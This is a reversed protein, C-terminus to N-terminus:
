RRGLGARPARRAGPTIDHRTDGRGVRRGFRVGALFRRSRAWCSDGGGTPRCSRRGGRQGPEGPRRKRSQFDSDRYEREVTSVAGSNRESVASSERRLELDMDLEEPAIGDYIGRATDRLSGAEVPLEM